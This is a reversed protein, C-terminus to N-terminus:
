ITKIIKTYNKAKNILNNDETVLTLKKEKSLYVYSADYFTLNLKEALTVIKEEYCEINLINLLKLTDKITKILRYLEEGDIKKHLMREKWLANGLEYRALETTYNGALVEIKGEKITKLIASADFLYSM